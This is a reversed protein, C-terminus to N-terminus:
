KRLNNRVYEPWVQNKLRWARRSPWRPHWHAPVRDAERYSIPVIVPWWHYETHTVRTSPDKSDTLESSYWAMWRYVDRTPQLSEQPRSYYSYDSIDWRETLRRYANSKGAMVVDYDGRNVGRRLRRNAITKSGRNYEKVGPFHKYSRSM